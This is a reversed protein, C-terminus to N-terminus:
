DIVVENSRNVIQLMAFGNGTNHLLIYAKKGPMIEPLEIWEYNHGCPEGNNDENEEVENDEGENDEDENEGEEGENDEDGSDEESQEIDSDESESVVKKNRLMDTQRELTKIMVVVPGLLLAATIFCALSVWLLM